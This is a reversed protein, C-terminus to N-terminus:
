WHPRLIGEVTTIGAIMSGAIAIAAPSAPRCSATLYRRLSYRRRQSHSLLIVDRSVGCMTGSEHNRSEPSRLANDHTAFERNVVVLRCSGIFLGSSYRCSAALHRSVARVTKASFPRASRSTMASVQSRIAPRM